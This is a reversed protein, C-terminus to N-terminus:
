KLEAIRTVAVYIQSIRYWTPFDVIGNPPLDFVSQFVRVANATGEGYIGDVRVTPLAPYNRAIANLQRQITRVPNGSSGQSLNYGPYSAPVGAIQPAIDLFIDSGYYYKLISIANYGQEALSQSGWQTMWGPCSVQRGDCYQTLLPQEINPKTIYNTLVSDVIDAINAYINRGYIFKQDYATSSTITFDYGKSRYWETYVRNLTFSMIALVNATIAAPSWTSYIESSAVNKIYQDYPIWYNPASSDPPGDHVIIYEPIVVNELVVFGEQEPLPKIPDEPIKPPYDYFLTHPGINILPQDSVPALPTEASGTDDAARIIQIAEEGPLVQIGNVTVTEATPSEFIVTYESYPATIREPTLSLELAPAPLTIIPTNGSEDTQLVEITQQSATEQVTVTGGALPRYGILSRAEIRLTGTSVSATPSTMERFLHM